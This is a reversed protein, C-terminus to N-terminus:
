TSTENRTISIEPLRLTHSPQRTCAVIIFFGTYSDISPEAIRYRLGLYRSCFTCFLHELLDYLEPFLALSTKHDRYKDLAALVHPYLRDGLQRIEDFGKTQALIKAPFGHHLLQLTTIFADVNFADHLTTM